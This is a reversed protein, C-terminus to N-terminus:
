GTEGADSTPGAPPAGILHMGFPDDPQYKGAAHSTGSFFHPVFVVNDGAANLKGYSEYGVRVNAITAGGATTYTALTFTKKEVPGDYAVAPSVLVVALLAAAATRRLLRNRM